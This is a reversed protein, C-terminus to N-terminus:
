ELHNSGASNWRQMGNGQEAQQVQMFTNTNDIQSARSGAVHANTIPVFVDFKILDDVGVDDTLGYTVAENSSLGTLGTKGVDFGHNNRMLGTMASGYLFGRGLERKPEFFGEVSKAYTTSNELNDNRTVASMRVFPVLGNSTATKRLMEQQAKLRMGEQEQAPTLRKGAKQAQQALGILKMLQESVQKEDAEAKRIQLRKSGLTSPDSPLYVVQGNGPVIKMGQLANDTTSSGTTMPKMTFANYIVGGASALDAVTRNTTNGDATKIKTMNEMMAQFDPSAAVNTSWFGIGDKKIPKGEADEGDAYQTTPSVMELGTANVLDNYFDSKPGKGDGAAPKQGQINLSQTTVDSSEVVKQLQLREMMQERVNAEAKEIDYARLTAYARTVTEKDGAPLNPNRLVEEMKQRAQLHNGGLSLMGSQLPLAGKTVGFAKLTQGFDSPEHVVARYQDAVLQAASDASILKRWNKGVSLQKSIANIQDVNQQEKTRNTSTLIGASSGGLKEYMASINAMNAESFRTSGREVSWPKIKSEVEQLEARAKESSVTPLTLHNPTGSVTGDANRKLPFYQRLVEPSQETFYSNFAEGYTKDMPNGDSDLAVNGLQASDLRAEDAKWQKFENVNATLKATDAADAAERAVQTQMSKSNYVAPDTNIRQQQLALFADNNRNMETRYAAAIEVKDVAQKLGTTHEAISKSGAEAGATDALAWAGAVDVPAAMQVNAIPVKIPPLYQYVADGIAGLLGGGALKRILLASAPSTSPTAGGSRPRLQIPM